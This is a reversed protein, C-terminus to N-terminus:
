LLKIFVLGHVSNEWRLLALMKNELNGKVLRHLTDDFFIDSNSVICKKGFLNVNAYEFADRFTLRRGLIIQNIKESAFPFSSFDIDEETLIHIQTIFPNLLNKTM